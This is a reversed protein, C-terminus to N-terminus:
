KARGKTIAQPPEGDPSGQSLLREMLGLASKRADFFQVSDAGCHDVAILVARLARLLKNREDAIRLATAGMRDIDEFLTTTPM